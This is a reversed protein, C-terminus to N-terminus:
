SFTIITDLKKQINYPTINPLMNNEMILRYFNRPIDHRMESIRFAYTSEYRYGGVSSILSAVYYEVIINKNNWITELATWIHVDDVFAYTVRCPCHACVYETHPLDDNILVSLTKYCYDCFNKM